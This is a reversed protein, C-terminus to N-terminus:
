AAGGGGGGGPDLEVSSVSDSPPAGGGGGGPGGGGGAGGGGGSGFAVPALASRISDILCPFLNFFDLPTIKGKRSKELSYGDSFFGSCSFLGAIELLADIPPPPRM